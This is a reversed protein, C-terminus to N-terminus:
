PTEGEFGDRFVTDTDTVDLSVPLTVLPTAPDNSELCIVAEHLGGTLGTADATATAEGIQGALVTGALPDFSLWDPLGCDSAVGTVSMVLHVQPANISAYTAPEDVDCTSSALYSPATEGLSNSGPYLRGVGNLDPAVLEMVLTAGAPVGAAIPVTVFQATQASLDVTRTALLTLNAYLFPGDLTYLNITVDTAVSLVEVGFSVSQVDFGGAIGFDPLAFTRLFQNGRTFPQGQVGCAITNPATIQNPVTSHTLTTSEGDLGPDGLVQVPITDAARILSQLGILGPDVPAVEPLAGGAFARRLGNAVLVGESRVSWALDEEGGNGILVTESAQEGSDLAYALQAPDVDIMPPLPAIGDGSLGISLSDANSAIAISQSFSGAAMPGFRYVLTCSQSPTLTFPTGTCTGGTRAFPAAAPAIGTVTVDASGSSTLTVTRAPALGGVDIEGFDVAAPVATLRRVAIGNGTLVVSASGSNSDSGIVLTQAFDSTSTPSFVLEVTCSEEPALSFPTAACDGGIRSFPAEADDIAAVAVSATGISSLTFTQAASATGLEVAGFGIQAPHALLTSQATDVVNLTIPMALEPQTPDNSQILLEATCEGLELEAADFAVSIESTGGPATTGANPTVSLWSSVSDGCPPVAENGFYLKGILAAGNAARTEIRTIPTVSVFGIFGAEGTGSLTVSGSGLSNNLSDFLKVNLTDSGGIAYLEVAVADVLPSLAVDTHSAEGAVIATSPADMFGQGVVFVNGSGATASFGEILDGPTFCDNNTESNFPGPCDTKLEGPGVLGGEFDEIALTDTAAQFSVLDKYQQFAGRASRSGAEINWELAEDGANSLSLPLVLSHGQDVTVSLSEPHVVLRPRPPGQDLNGDPHLRALRNRPEGAVETFFGAILVKGDDQLVVADLIRGGVSWPVINVDFSMDLHGSSDLQALYTRVIPGSATAITTFMGGIFIKGDEQLALSHVHNNAGGSAPEFTSDITGDSNLRAFRGRPVGDINQFNGAVLIRGDSQVLLDNTVGDPIPGFDADVSGDALVRGLRNRPLPGVLTFEGALLIKGDAQIALARVTTTGDIFLKADFSTDLGGEAHFRAVGRRIDGGVASVFNGTGGVLIKGDAQILIPARITGAQSSWSGEPDFGEDLSGDANLRAVGGRAIGGVHDFRGSIVVKGDPQVAVSWVILQSPSIHEILPPVFDADVSGDPHLRAVRGRPIGDVSDFTGVIIIKGDPQLAINFVSNNPSPNFALGSGAVVLLVLAVLMRSVSPILM